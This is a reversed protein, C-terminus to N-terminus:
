EVPHEVIRVLHSRSAFSICVLHSRCQRPFIESIYRSHKPFTMSLWKSVNEKTALNTGLKVQRLSDKYSDMNQVVDLIPCSTEPSFSDYPTQAYIYSYVCFLLLISLIRKMGDANISSSGIYLQYM